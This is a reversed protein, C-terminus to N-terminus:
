IRTSRSFIMDNATSLQNREVINRVYKVSKGKLLIQADSDKVAQLKKKDRQNITFNRYVM